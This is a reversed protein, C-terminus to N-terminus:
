RPRAWAIRLPLAIMGDRLAAFLSAAVLDATTGPNRGNGAARLWADFDEFAARGASTRPWGADIVAAARASSEEAEAQGRKRAILSDPFRAMLRLHCAAIAQELSGLDTLGRELAPMGEELVDRFGDAYQRAVLDREAALAMIERFPRTPEEAVDEAAVRGLGSPAAQRIAKYVLRSDEVDLRDLVAVVGARLSEGEPVAALPALLLVTGLNTNTVVVGRTARIAELVTEGVRRGRAAEFAPGVAVASALFDLYASDAFGRGPHVNGPKRASSEWVCALQACLGRSTM